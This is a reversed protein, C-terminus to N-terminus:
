QDRAIEEVRGFGRGFRQPARHVGQTRQALRTHVDQGDFPIVITALAPFARPRHVQQGALAIQFQQTRGEVVAFQAEIRPRLFASRQITGMVGDGDGAQAENGVADLLMVGSRRGLQRCVGRHDHERMDHGHAAAVRQFVAADGHLVKSRQARARGIEGETVAVGAQTEVPFRIPPDEIGPREFIDIGEVVM